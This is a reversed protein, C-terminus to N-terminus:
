RGAAAASYRTRAHREGDAGRGPDHPVQPGHQGGSTKAAIPALWGSWPNQVLKETASPKTPSAVPRERQGILRPVDDVRHQRQHEDDPREPVHQEDVLM